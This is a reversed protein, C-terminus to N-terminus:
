NFKYAKACCLFGDVFLSYLRYFINAFIIDLLPNIDLIYLEFLEIDFFIIIKFAWNFIPLLGLCVNKFSCWIAFLCMFLHEVNSLMLSICILVVNVYGWVQWFPWWWFSLLYYINAIIQLFLFEHVINTPIYISVDMISFLISPGWFILFLVVMHNLREMQPHIALSFLVVSKFLYIYELTWFLM